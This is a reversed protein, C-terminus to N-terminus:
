LPGTLPRVRTATQVGSIDNCFDLNRRDAVSPRRRSRARRGSWASTKLVHVRGSRRRRLGGRRPAAVKSRRPEGGRDPRLTALAVSLLPRAVDARRSLVEAATASLVDAFNEDGAADFAEAIRKTTLLRLKGGVAGDCIQLLDKLLLRMRQAQAANLRGSPLSSPM